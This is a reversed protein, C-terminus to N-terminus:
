IIDYGTCFKFLEVEDMPETITLGEHEDDIDKFEDHDYGRDLFELNQLLVDDTLCLDRRLTETLDTHATNYAPRRTTIRLTKRMPRNLVFGIQIGRPLVNM